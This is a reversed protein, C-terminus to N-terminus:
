GSGDNSKRHDTFRKAKREFRPLTGYPVPTVQVRLGVEDHIEKAVAAALANPETGEVEVRIEMETVEGQHYVDGAFEEVEPFRRIINEFSSPMVIVGRILLADDVRGLIGGDLRWFTRGCECPTTDLIVQDSTRRRIAPFDVNDLNTLVLEGPSGPPVTDCTIPNLVEVIFSSEIVHLGGPQVECEFSHRSVETAGAQDFCKATWAEEIRARTAPVHGGPEGVLLVVRV